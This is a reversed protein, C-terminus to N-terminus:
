LNKKNDLNNLESGSLAPFPMATGRNKMKEVLGHGRFGRTELWGLKLYSGVKSSDPAGSAVHLPPHLWKNKLRLKKKPPPCHENVNQQIVSV